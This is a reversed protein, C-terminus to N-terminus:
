RGGRTYEADQQFRFKRSPCRRGIEPKKLGNTIKRQNGKTRDTEKEESLEKRGNRDPEQVCVQQRHRTYICV